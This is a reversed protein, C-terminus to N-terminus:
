VGLLILSRLRDFLFHFFPTSLSALRDLAILYTELARATFLTLVLLLFSVSM